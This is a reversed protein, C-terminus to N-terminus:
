GKVEERNNTDRSPLLLCIAELIETVGAVVEAEKFREKAEIIKGKVLEAVNIIQETEEQDSSEESLRIMRYARKVNILGKQFNKVGFQKRALEVTTLFGEPWSTRPKVLIVATLLADVGEAMHGAKLLQQSRSLLDDIKQAVAPIEGPSCVPCLLHLIGLVMVVTGKASKGM